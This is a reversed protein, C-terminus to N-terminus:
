GHEGNDTKEEIGNVENVLLQAEEVLDIAAPCWTICRGCGVCGSRGYQQQWAVLKHILWQKYRSAITPRVTKGFIYSHDESFCSDWLRVQSASALSIDSESEQKSCFCTPCVLTCNGCALCREAVAQWRDSDLVKILGALQSKRPMKKKQAEAASKVQQEATIQQAATAPTLPLQAMVQQGKESGGELLFGEDLEDLVIDYYFCAEPGDGTSVCFCQNGSRSCNVAVILMQERQAQYFEDQYAGQLFHKDQLALAALDCARVGIFALKEAEVACQNFVLNRDDVDCTWLTQRPKFLFPKLAQPGTNWDFYRPSHSAILQYSGPSQEDILGRALQRPSTVRDFVIAGDKVVPGVIKYDLAHLVDFLAHFDDRGLTKKHPKSINKM